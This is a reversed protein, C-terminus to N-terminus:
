VRGLRLVKVRHVQGQELHRNILEALKGSLEVGAQPEALVAPDRGQVYRFILDRLVLTREEFERRTLEDPFYVAVELEMIVEGDGQPFNLVFPKLELSTPGAVQATPPTPPAPKEGSLLVILLLVLAPVLVAAALLGVKFLSLRPKPAAAAEEKAEPEPAPEEKPPAAAPEKKPAEEAEEELLLDDVDLEVKKPLPRGEEIHVGELGEVQTLDLDKLLNDDGPGRKKEPPKDEAM